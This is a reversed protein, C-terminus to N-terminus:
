KVDGLFAELDRKLGGPADRKSVFEPMIVTLGTPITTANDHAVVLYIVPKENSKFEQIV